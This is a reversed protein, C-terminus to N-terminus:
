HKADAFYNEMVTGEKSGSLVSFSSIFPKLFTVLSVVLEDNITAAAPHPHIISKCSPAILLVEAQILKDVLSKFNLLERSSFKGLKFDTFM